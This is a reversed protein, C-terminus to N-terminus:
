NNNYDFVVTYTLAQNAVENYKAESNPMELTFVITVEAVNNEDFAGLTVDPKLLEHSPTVTIDLDYGGVFETIHVNYKVTISDVDNTGMVVDAPVLRKDEDVPLTETITVRKGQGVNISGNDEQTLQDWYAFTLATVAVLLLVLAISLLSKYNKKM